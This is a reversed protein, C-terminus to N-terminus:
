ATESQPPFVALNFFREPGLDGLDRAYDAAAKPTQKSHLAEFRRPNKEKIVGYAAKEEESSHALTDEVIRRSRGDLWGRRNLDAPSSRRRLKV